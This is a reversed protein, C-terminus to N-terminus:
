VIKRSKEVENLILLPYNCLTERSSGQHKCAVPVAVNQVVFTAFLAVGPRAWLTQFM